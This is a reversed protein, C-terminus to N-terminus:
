LLLYLWAKSWVLEFLGAAQRWSPRLGDLHNIL